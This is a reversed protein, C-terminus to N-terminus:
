LDHTTLIVHSNAYLLVCLSVNSVQASTDFIGFLLRQIFKKIDYEVDIRSHMDIHPKNIAGLPSKQDSERHNWSDASLLELWFFCYKNCKQM